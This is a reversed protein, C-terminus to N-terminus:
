RNGLVVCLVSLTIWGVALIILLAYVSVTFRPKFRQDSAQPQRLTTVVDKPLIDKLPDAM